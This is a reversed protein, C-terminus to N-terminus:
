SKIVDYGRIKLFDKLHKEFENKKDVGQLMDIIDDMKEM